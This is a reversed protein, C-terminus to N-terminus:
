AGSGPRQEAPMFSLVVDSLGLLPTFTLIVIGNSTATRILAEGYVDMPPEEDFLVVSRGTGQFARRGQDTSKFGLSSWGGSVHRVHITDVLDQVGSRWTTRGLLNGPVVGRGDLAKRGDRSSIEGLLTLQLIDRTTEYTDGAVWVSTPVEFRRGKWWDPYLGTLHASVAYCGVLSKGVRNAACYCSERYKRSAELFELHKPYKERAYITQGPQFLGGM